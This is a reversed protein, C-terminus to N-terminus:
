CWVHLYTYAVHVHELQAKIKCVVTPPQTPSAQSGEGEERGGDQYGRGAIKLTDGRREGEGRGGLFFRIPCSFLTNKKRTWGCSKKFVGKREKACLEKKKRKMILAGFLAELRGLVKKQLPPFPNVSGGGGLFFFGNISVVM